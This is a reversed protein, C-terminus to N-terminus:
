LVDEQSDEDLKEGRQIFEKRFAEDRAFKNAFFEAAAPYTDMPLYRKVQLGKKNLIPQDGEYISVIVKANRPGDNDIEVQFRFSEVEIVRVGTPM